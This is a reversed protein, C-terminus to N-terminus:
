IVTVEHQTAGDRGRPCRHSHLPSPEVDVLPDDGGLGAGLQVMQLAKDCM